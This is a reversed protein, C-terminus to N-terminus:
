HAHKEHPDECTPNEPADAAVGIPKRRTYIVAIEDEYVRKWDEDDRVKNILARRNLKDLLVTNVGYRDLNDEWNSPATILTMYDRWVENPVLHAHSDVFVQVGKPGEWLLYDGWEYPHFMLGQPPNKHLYEVAAVPTQASFKNKLKLDPNKGHMVTQGFPTTGFFIWALVVVVLNWRSSRPSRIIEGSFRPLTRVAAVAHLALCGAALAAWWVIMRSTWLAMGGFVLLVLGEAAPVRRPSFRYALILGLSVAAMWQGQASRLHLPDWELLDALNPNNSFTFAEHYLGIGYPNLLVAAAALETLLFYRRVREDNIIAEVRGTRRFVDIARGVVGCALLILGVTFSGHLNAWLAFLAPVLVWNARTWHRRTVLSLLIVFCALGATQPRFVPFQHWMLGCFLFLAGLSAVVSNTRRYVGAVLLAFCLTSLSAHLFQLASLGWKKEAAYFLVQSLWATDVVPVGQALPMFPETAPLAGTETILKGFSLHGWIDTHYLPQYCLVWFMVGLVATFGAVVRPCQLRHPIREILVLPPQSSNTAPEPSQLTTSM